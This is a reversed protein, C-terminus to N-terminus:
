EVKLKISTVWLATRDFNKKFNNILFSKDFSVENHFATKGNINVHVPKKFNIMKPSILLEIVKVRSTQINITNNICSAKVVASKDNTYYLDSRYNKAVKDYSVTNIAKHWNANNLSTDFETIRIWDCSNNSYDDTEWYINKNFPNRSTTDIFASSFPLDKQLHKDYHQYGPYEKYIIPSNLSNFLKVILRTQQIPRLDDLDSHVLYLPRNLSNQLYIDNAFLNNLMSNYCVFGAFNSPKYVDLGFAGDAGDSHGFAFVKNDDINLFEKLRGVVNNLTNYTPNTNGKFRNVVWDFKKSVDAFPRVIIINQKSFYDFFIDDDKTTDKKYANGFRSQGVAGHLMLVLTAPVNNQYNKPIFINFPVEGFFSDSYVFLYDKNTQQIEPYENWSKLVNWTSDATISNDKNILEVQKTILNNNLTNTDFAQAFSVLSFLIFVLIFFSNKIM